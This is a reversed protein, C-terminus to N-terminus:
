LAKWDSDPTKQVFVHCGNHTVNKFNQNKGEISAHNRYQEICMNRAHKEAEKQSNGEGYIDVQALDSLFTPLNENYGLCDCNEVKYLPKIKSQQDHSKAKATSNLGFFIILTVLTQLSLKIGKM